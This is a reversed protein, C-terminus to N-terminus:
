DRARLPKSGKGDHINQEMLISADLTKLPKVVDEKKGLPRFSSSNMSYKFFPTLLFSSSASDNCQPLLNLEKLGHSVM